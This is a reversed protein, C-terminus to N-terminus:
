KRWKDLCMEQGITSIRYTTLFRISVLNRPNPPNNYTHPMTTPGNIRYHTDQDIISNDNEFLNDLRVTNKDYPAVKNGKYNYPYGNNALDDMNAKSYPNKSTNENMTQGEEGNSNRILNPDIMQKANWRVLICILIILILVGGGAATVSIIM